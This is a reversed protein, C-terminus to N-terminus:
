RCALADAKDRLVSLMEESVDIGIMDYGAQALM